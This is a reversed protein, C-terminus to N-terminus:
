CQSWLMCQCTYAETPSESYRSLDLRASALHAIYKAITRFFATTTTPFTHLVTAELGTLGTEVPGNKREGTAQKADGMLAM